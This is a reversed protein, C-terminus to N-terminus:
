DRKRSPFAKEAKPVCWMWVWYFRIKGKRPSAISNNYNTTANSSPDPSTIITKTPSLIANVRTESKSPTKNNSPQHRSPSGTQLYSVSFNKGNTLKISPLLSGFPPQAFLDIIYKGLTIQPDLTTRRVGGHMIHNHLPIIYNHFPCRSPAPCKGVWLFRSCEAEAITEARLHETGEADDDIVTKNAKNKLIDLAKM